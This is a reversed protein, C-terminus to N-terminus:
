PAARSGRRRPLVLEPLERAITDHVGVVTPVSGVPYWTYPSTFLFADPRDRRVARSLRALDAVGRSGSAQRGRLPVPRATAGTPLPRDPLARGDVYLLYTTDADAAVLASVAARTFRGYGRRNDWSTADVGVRM